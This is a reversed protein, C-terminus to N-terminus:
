RKKFPILSFIVRDSDLVFIYGIKFELPKEDTYGKPTIATSNESNPDWERLVVSDGLQFGRDNKRVEFTKSGDKVRQFYQPWTKLEHIM